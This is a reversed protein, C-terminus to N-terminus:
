VCAGAFGNAGSSFGSAASQIAKVLLVFVGPRRGLLSPLETMEASGASFGAVATALLVPFGEPQATLCPGRLLLRGRPARKTSTRGIGGGGELRLRFRPCGFRRLFWRLTTSPGVKTASPAADVRGSWGVVSFLQSVHDARDTGAISITLVDPPDRAELSSSGSGSGDVVEGGM